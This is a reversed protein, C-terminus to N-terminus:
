IEMIVVLFDLVEYIVVVKVDFRDVGGFLILGFDSFVYVLAFLDYGAVM